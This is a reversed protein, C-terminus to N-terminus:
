ELGRCGGGTLGGPQGAGWGPQRVPLLAASDSLDDPDTVTFPVPYTGPRLTQDVSVEVFCRKGGYGYEDDECGTAVVNIGAPCTFDFTLEDSDLDEVYISATATGGRPVTVHGDYARPPQIVHILLYALDSGGWGDDARFGVLQWSTYGTATWTYEGSVSSMGTVTSFSGPGSVKTLTIMDEEDDTATVTASVADGPKVKIEQPAVSVVPNENPIMTPPNNWKLENSELGYRDIVWIRLFHESAESDPRFRLSFGTECPRDWNMCSIEPPFDAEGGKVEVKVRFVESYDSDSIKLLFCLNHGGCSRPEKEVFSLQPRSGAQLGVQISVEPNCGDRAYVTLHDVGPNLARTTTIEFEAGVGLPNRTYGLHTVFVGPPIDGVDISKIDDPGDPDTAWISLITVDPEFPVGIVHDGSITPGGEGAECVEGCFCVRSFHLEGKGGAVTFSFPGIGLGVTLSAKFEGGSQFHKAYCKTPPERLFPGTKEEREPRFASTVETYEDPWLAAMPDSPVVTERSYLTTHWYTPCCPPFPTCTYTDTLSLSETTFTLGLVVKLGLQALEEVLPVGLSISAEEKGWEPDTEVQWNCTNGFLTGGIAIVLVLALIWKGFDRNM